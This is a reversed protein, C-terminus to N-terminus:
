RHVGHCRKDANLSDCACRGYGNKSLSLELWSHRGPCNPIPKQGMRMAIRGRFQPPEQHFAGSERLPPVGPRQSPTVSGPPRQKQRLSRSGHHSRIHRWLQTGAEGPKVPLNSWPHLCEEEALICAANVVNPRRGEDFRNLNHLRRCLVARPRRRYLSAITGEGNPGLWRM